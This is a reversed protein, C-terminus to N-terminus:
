NFDFGEHRLYNIMQIAPDLEIAKEYDREAEDERGNKELCWGRCDYLMAYKPFAEIAESLIKIAENFNNNEAFTLALNHRALAMIEQRSLPTLFVRDAIAKPPILSNIFYFQEDQEAGINADWSIVFNKGLWRLYLHNPLLVPYVPWSLKEGLALYFLVFMDCDGIWTRLFHHFLLTDRYNVVKREFLFHHVAQLKRLAKHRNEKGNSFTLKEDAIADTLWQDLTKLDSEDAGAAFELRLIDHAITQSQANKPIFFLCLFLSLTFDRV